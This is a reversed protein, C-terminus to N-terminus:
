SIKRYPFVPAMWRRIFVWLQKLLVDPGRHRLTYLGMQLLSPQAEAEMSLAAGLDPLVRGSPGPAFQTRFSTSRLRVYIEELLDLLNAARVQPHYRALVDQCAREGLGSRLRSQEILLGLYEEWEKQSDALYGNEAPHIAYLFADTPSAVTPVQVLGAEVYKIESKSQGFPNRGVLPALNIDFQVLLDPLSRWPQLPIRRIREELGKWGGGPDLPGAIWLETQPYRQMVAKLAPAVIQFDHDHTPTGSAYGMVVRQGAPARRQLAATSLALMELSFANRHVLAPRGLPRVQDALFDTSATVGDCALLAQQHRRMEAQYLGFRIPDKFDPSDIWNIASPDFVLDDVDMLTM